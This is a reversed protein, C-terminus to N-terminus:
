WTGVERQNSLAFFAGSATDVQDSVCKDTGDFNEFERLFAENWPAEVIFVNGAEAQASLPKARTGKSEHVPNAYATFGMEGLRRVHYGAEAKGAQAPDQEIWVDVDRGDHLATNDIARQVDGPTGQLRVVDLCYWRGQVVTWLAGVTWSQLPDSSAVSAARDWYRVRPGGAPAAKVKEFWHRKFYNGASFRINWNGGLLREREVLTLGKLRALYEPNTELLIKNDYVTSAIFTFSQPLADARSEILEEPTDAWVPQNEDMVFWRIKGSRDQRAIGTDDDIWWRLWERLFHDPDPNCSARVYPRVGCTSRNRSFMYVWQKYTFHELQDIQLLAIESGDWSYCDDEYQMHAFSITAPKYYNPTRFRFARGERPTAGLRPYMGMAKDWLGGENRIEPNTRRFTVAGFGPVQCHRLPEMLLAMTKGGGAAGGIIAVDARTRLFETQPGPQPRIELDTAVAM